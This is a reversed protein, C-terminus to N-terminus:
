SNEKNFIDNDSVLNLKNIIEKSKYKFLACQVLFSFVASMIPMEENSHTLSSDKILENKIKNYLEM